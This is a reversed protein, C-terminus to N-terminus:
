APPASSPPASAPSATRQTPSLPPDLLDLCDVIYRRLLHRCRHLHQRAANENCGLEKALVDVPRSEFERLLLWRAQQPHDAEFRGLGADTCVDADMNRRAHAAAPETLALAGIRAGDVAAAIAEEDSDGGDSRLRRSASDLLKKARNDCLTMLWPALDAGPRFGDATRWLDLVADQWVDEAEAPSLRFRFRLRSLTNSEYARFVKRLATEADPGRAAIRAVWARQEAREDTTLAPM